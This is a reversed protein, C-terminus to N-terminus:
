ILWAMYGVSLTQHFKIIIEAVTYLVYLVRVGGFVTNNGSDMIKQFTVLTSVM